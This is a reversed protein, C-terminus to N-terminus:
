RPAFIKGAPKLLWMLAVLIWWSVCVMGAAVGVLFVALVASVARLEGANGLHYEPGLPLLAVAASVAMLTPMTRRVFVGLLERVSLQQGASWSHFLLLSVIGVGWSLLTTPYRMGMRGATAWWDVSLFLTVDHCSSGSSYITFNLGHSPTLGLPPVYPASSHAHLSITKDSTLPYYHIESAHSTHMLLPSFLPAEFM